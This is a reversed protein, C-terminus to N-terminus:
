LALFQHLDPARLLLVCVFRKKAGLNSSERCARQLVNYQLFLL